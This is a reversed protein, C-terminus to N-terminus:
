YPVTDKRLEEKSLQYETQPDLFLEMGEVASLLPASLGLRNATSEIGDAALTLAHRSDYKRFRGFLSNAYSSAKATIGEGNDVPTPSPPPEPAPERTVPHLPQVLQLTYLTGAYAKFDYLIDLYRRLVESNPLLVLIAGPALNAEALETDTNKAPTWLPIIIRIF